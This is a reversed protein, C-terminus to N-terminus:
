FQPEVVQQPADQPPQGSSESPKCGKLQFVVSNTTDVEMPKGQFLTPSYRWKHVADLSAKMLLPPGSIYKLDHISGDKGVIAHLVVTGCIKAEKAIPPYKPTVLKTIKAAMVNGGVRIRTPPPAPESGSQSSTSPQGSQQSPQEQAAAGISLWFSMMFALTLIKSLM